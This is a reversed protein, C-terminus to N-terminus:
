WSADLCWRENGNESQVFAFWSMSYIWHLRIPLCSLLL